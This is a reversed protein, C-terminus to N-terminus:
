ELALWYVSLLAIAVLGGLFFVLLPDPTAAATGVEQALEPGAGASGGGGTDATALEVSGGGGSLVSRVAGFGAVAVALLLYLGLVRGLVRSLRSRTSRRGVFLVVAESRPAYVAMETGTESYGVGAREVLDAEELRKLHYHVNQLSTGVEERIEPPTSPQDYVHSLIHRATESSLVEFTRDAEAGDIDLVRAEEPDADVEARLPLLGM